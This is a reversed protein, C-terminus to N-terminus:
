LTNAKVVPEPHLGSPDTHGAGVVEGLAKLGERVDTWAAGAHDAIYLAAAGAVHPTAMSTGSLIAYRNGPWTSTINVGPTAVDVVSGFNSFTAFTDDPGYPTAVGLGGSAGDSDALASVTIVADDYAAPVFQAAAGANNGAAVVFTVGADRARCIAQHLPDNSGSGSTNKGCNNDSVGAGGLSMNAVTIPGGNKPAKSTVFDIGCIVQSWTGSGQNNLVRVAWLKAKPAVGVVGQTNNIGAITGAVHTGHGNGDKYSSGVCSKGGVVNAALDPHTYDIGTDIVAVNVGSGQNVKNEADIRNIGTPLIQTSAQTSAGGRATARVSASDLVQADGTTDISVTYDPSVYAVSPDSKVEALKDDPITASFGHIVSRYTYDGRGFHHKSSLNDVTADETADTVAGDKFVVIYHGSIRADAIRDHAQAPHAGLVSVAALVGITGLGLAFSLKLHTKM